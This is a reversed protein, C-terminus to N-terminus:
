VFKPYFNPTDFDFTGYNYTLDIRNSPDSLRIASHGFKSYLDKGPGITILSIKTDPGFNQGFVFSSLFILISFTFLKSKM